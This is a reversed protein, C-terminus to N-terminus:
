LVVLNNDPVAEAAAQVPAAREEVQDAKHVAAPLHDTAAALHHVAGAVAKARAAMHLKAEWAPLAAYKKKRCAPLAVAPVAPVAEARAAQPHAAVHLRGTKVAAGARAKVRAAAVQHDAEEKTMM